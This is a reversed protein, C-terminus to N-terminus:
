FTVQDPEIGASIADLVLSHANQNVAAIDEPRSKTTLMHLDAVIFYSEYQHQLRV